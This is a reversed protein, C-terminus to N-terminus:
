SPSEVQSSAGEKEGGRKEEEKGLIQCDWRDKTYRTHEFSETM